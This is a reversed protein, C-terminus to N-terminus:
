FVAECLRIHGPGPNTVKAEKLIDKQQAPSVPRFNGSALKTFDDERWEVIIALRRRVGGLFLLDGREVTIRIKIPIKNGRHVM